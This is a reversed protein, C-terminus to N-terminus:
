GSGQDVSQMNDLRWARRTQLRKQGDAHREVSPGDAHDTLSAVPYIVPRGTLKRWSKGIAYDAPRDPLNHLVERVRDTPISYCVAHLLEELAIYNRKEKDAKLLEVAIRSQWHPPRGRGLYFSILDDPFRGLWGAAHRMFDSVPLADDEMVICRESQAAAWQLANKHGTLAGYGSHDLIIHADFMDALAQAMNRRSYHAVIVIKIPM